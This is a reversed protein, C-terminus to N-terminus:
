CDSYFINISRSDSKTFLFISAFIKKVSDSTSHECVFTCYNKVKNNIIRFHCKLFASCFLPGTGQVPYHDYFHELKEFCFTCFLFKLFM